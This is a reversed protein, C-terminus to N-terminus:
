LCLLTAQTTVAAGASADSPAWEMSFEFCRADEPDTSPTGSHESIVLWRDFYGWIVPLPPNSILERCMVRVGFATAATPTAFTARVESQNAAGANPRTALAV